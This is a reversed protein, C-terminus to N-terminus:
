KSATSGANLSTLCHASSMKVSFWSMITCLLSRAAPVAFRNSRMTMAATTNPAMMPSSADVHSTARM